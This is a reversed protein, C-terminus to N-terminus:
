YKFPKWHCCQLLSGGPTHHRGEQFHSRQTKQWPLPPFHIKFTQAEWLISLFSFVNCLLESFPLLEALAQIKFFLLWGAVARTIIKFLEKGPHAGDKGTKRECGRQWKKGKSQDGWCHREEWWAGTNTNHTCAEGRFKPTEKFPDKTWKERETEIKEGKNRTVQKQIQKDGKGWKKLRKRRRQRWDRETVPWLIYSFHLKIAPQIQRIINLAGM